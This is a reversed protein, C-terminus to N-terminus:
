EMGLYKDTFLENGYFSFVQLIALVAHLIYLLYLIFSFKIRDVLKKSDTTIRLSYHTKSEAISM